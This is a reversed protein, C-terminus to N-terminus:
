RKREELQLKETEERERREREERRKQIDATTDGLQCEIPRDTPVEIKRVNKRGKKPCKFILM